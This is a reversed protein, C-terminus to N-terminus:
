ASIKAAAPDGPLEDGDNTAFAGTKNPMGSSASMVLIGTGARLESLAANTPVGFPGSSEGIEANGILACKGDRSAAVVGEAAELALLALTFEEVLKGAEPAAETPIGDAYGFEL